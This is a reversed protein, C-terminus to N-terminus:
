RMLADVVRGGASRMAEAVALQYTQVYWRGAESELERTSASVVSDPVTESRHLEAVVAANFSAELHDVLEAGEFPEFTDAGPRFVHWVAHAAEALAQEMLVYFDGTGRADTWRAVLRVRVPSPPETTYEGLWAQLTLPPEYADVIRRAEASAGDELWELVEEMRGPPAEAELFAAIDARLRERDFGEQVAPVLRELEADTLDGALLAVQRSFARARADILQEVHSAELLQEAPTSPAAVAPAAVVDASGGGGSACGAVALVAALVAPLIPGSVAPRRGGKSAPDPSETM